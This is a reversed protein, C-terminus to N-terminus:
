YEYSCSVSIEYSGIDNDKLFCTLINSSIYLGGINPINENNKKITFFGNNRYIAYEYPVNINIKEINSNTIDCSFMFRVDVNSNLIRYRANDIVINSLYNNSNNILTISTNLSSTWSTWDKYFTIMDSSNSLAISEQGGFVIKTTSVLPSSLNSLNLDTFTATTPLREQSIIGSTINSADINLSLMSDSMNSGKFIIRRTVANLKQLSMEHANINSTVTLNGGVNLISDSAINSGINVKGNHLIRMREEINSTGTGNTRFVLDGYGNNSSDAFHDFCSISAMDYITATDVDYNQFNLTAFPSDISQRAGQIRIINEKNTNNLIKFM